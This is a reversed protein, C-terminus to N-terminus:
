GNPWRRISDAARNMVKEMDDYSLGSDDRSQNFLVAICIGDPRQLAMSRTGPLRGFFCGRPQDHPRRPTGDLAYANLFRVLDESSAILGGHADMAELCFAGDPAPVLAPGHAAHVNPGGGPDSYFPERPNRRGPLSHGVEVDRIGLPALVAQRVHALYSQGTVKEIVRGLVCYGFNSYAYKSGPAFDLKQGVMYCIVDRNSAPSPKGLAAAIEAARFMPDPSKGADWGGRHELLHQVTVDQLRPDPQRGRPPAVELLPFVRTDQKLKGAAILRRVAAATIPKSVSAIRMLADPAIVRTGVRDAWGYGRTLLLRGHRMVALTGAPIHRERMFQQMARDFAALAPVAQGSAPLDATRDKVWVAAFRATGASPYGCVALPRYGQATWRVSEEKLRRASLDLPAKWDAVWLDRVLILAFRVGGGVPYASLCRPSFGRTRWRACTKECEAATLDHRAVCPEAATTFFGIFHAADGAPYGAVYGPHLGKRELEACTQRYGASTLHHRCEWVGEVDDRIWIAALRTRGGDPYGTTTLPRYGQKGLNDFAAQYDDRTLGQRAIWPHNKGGKHAIACFRPSQGDQFAQVFVPRYGERAMRDIWAQYAQPSEGHLVAFQVAARAPGVAGLVGALLLCWSRGNCGPVADFWRPM